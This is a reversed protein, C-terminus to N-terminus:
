RASGSPEVEATVVVTSRVEVSGPEVPPAYSAREMAMAMMPRPPTQVAGGEEVAILRVIRMGMAAALADVKARAQRAADALARAEVAQNNKLRFEIGHIRNAGGETAIDIVRGVDAIQHITVRVLNTATYGSIQPGRNGDAPTPPRYDPNLSYSATEIDVQKGLAKLKQIVADSQTANQAAAEKATRATSTVGVTVEAQDPKASATAEGKATITAPAPKPTQAAATAALLLPILILRM